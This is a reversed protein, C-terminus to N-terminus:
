DVGCYLIHEGDLIVGNLYTIIVDSLEANKGKIIEKIDNNYSVSYSGVSESSKGRDIGNDYYKLVKDMIDFMCMKIEQPINDSEIERLRNFTMLDIKRRTEFELLNFPMLDLTGGLAMYEEYTLYQGSFEM